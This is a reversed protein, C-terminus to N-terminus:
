TVPVCPLLRSGPSVRRRSREQRGHAPQAAVAAPPKMPLRSTNFSSGLTPRIVEARVLLGNDGTNMSQFIDDFLRMSVIVRVQSPEGAGCDEWSPSDPVSMNCAFQVRYQPDRLLDSTGDNAIYRSIATAQDSAAYACTVFAAAITYPERRSSAPRQMMSNLSRKGSGAAGNTTVFSSGNAVVSSLRCNKCSMLCSRM